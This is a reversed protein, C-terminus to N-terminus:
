IPRGRFESKSRKWFGSGGLTRRSLNGQCWTEGAAVTLMEM